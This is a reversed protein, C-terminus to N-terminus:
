KLWKLSDEKVSANLFFFIEKKTTQKQEKRKKKKFLLKQELLVHLILHPTLQQTVWGWNQWQQASNRQLTQNCHSIPTSQSSQDRACIFEVGDEPTLRQKSHM